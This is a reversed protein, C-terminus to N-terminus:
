GMLGEGFLFPNSEDIHRDQYAGCSHHWWSSCNVVSSPDNCAEEGAKNHIPVAWVPPLAVVIDERPRKISAEGEHPHKQIQAQAQFVDANVPPSIVKISTGISGAWCGFSNEDFAAWNKVLASSVFDEIAEALKEISKSLHITKFDTHIYSM